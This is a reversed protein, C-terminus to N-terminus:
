GNRLCHGPQGRLPGPPSAPKLPGSWAAQRPRGVGTGWWDAGVSQGTDQGGLLERAGETPRDPMLISAAECLRTPAGDPGPQPVPVRM